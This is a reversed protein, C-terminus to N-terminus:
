NWRFYNTQMISFYILLVQLIKYKWVTKTTKHTLTFSLEAAGAIDHTSQLRKRILEAIAAETKLELPKCKAELDRKLDWNPKKPALDLLEM